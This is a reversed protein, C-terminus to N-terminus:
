DKKDVVVMVHTNTTTDVAKILNGEFDGNDIHKLMDEDMNSYEVNGDKDKIYVHTTSSNNSSSKHNLSSKSIRNLLFGYVVIIGLILGLSVVWMNITNYNYKKYTKKEQKEM